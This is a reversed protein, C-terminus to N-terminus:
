KASEKKVYGTYLLWEFYQGEFWKDQYGKASAKVTGQANQEVTCLINPVENQYIRNAEGLPLMPMKYKLSTDIKYPIEAVKKKRGM